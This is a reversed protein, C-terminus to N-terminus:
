PALREIIWAGDDDSRYRFRDHLRSPRGQWFEYSEPILLWGGWHSPRPVERGEFEATFGAVLQELEDRDAIVTSQPSAWAGIQSERPRSAFYADSEFRSLVEVTGRVRVQRHLGVWPFVASALPNADLQRGKASEYNGFFTIGEDDVGRALVIRSDPMGDDAITSIAMANPEPLGADLADVYWQHWQQVPSEDLDDRDLGATEYQVRRDRVNM